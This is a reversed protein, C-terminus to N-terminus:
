CTPIDIDSVLIDFALSVKDACRCLVRYAAAGKQPSVDTNHRPDHFAMWTNGEIAEVMVERDMESNEDVTVKGTKELEDHLAKVRDWSGEALHELGETDNFVDRFCDWCSLRHLMADRETKAFKITKM